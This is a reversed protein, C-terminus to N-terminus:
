TQASVGHGAPDGERDRRVLGTLGFLTAGALTGIACFLLFPSYGGTSRLTLNLVLSGAVTGAGVMMNVFSFLLSFNRVDLHRSLLFAGIDGEAGHAFGIVLVAPLLLTAGTLHAVLILYGAAPLALISAAVLHPRIRDLAIGSLWRGIIVGIAYLSVLYTAITDTIGMDMAILKLQSTAFVQPVSVLFTGGILLLFTPNRMLALFEQRSLRPKRRAPTTAPQNRGTMLIAFLGGIGSVLALAVYGSRWGSHAILRSLLPAAIAAVLPSASMSLALALGRARDFREVIVRCFVFATTLVGFSNLLINLAFFQYLGGNMMSMALFCLPVVSFGVIVAIHTGFRDTFRGAVPMLLMTALPLSGVLAFDAKSWGLAAILPPGFTSLTFYNLAAGAALGISAGLLSKWHSRFEALYTL